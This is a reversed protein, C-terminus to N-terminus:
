HASGCVGAQRGINFELLRRGRGPAISGTPRPAHASVFFGVVEHDHAEENRRDRSHLTGGAREARLRVRRADSVEWDPGTHGDGEGEVPENSSVSLSSTVPGCGDAAGYSITM